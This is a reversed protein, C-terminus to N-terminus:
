KHDKVGAELELDTRFKTLQWQGFASAEKGTWWSGCVQAQLLGPRERSKAEEGEWTQEKPKAKTERKGKM